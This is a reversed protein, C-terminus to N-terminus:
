LYWGCVIKQNNHKSCTQLWVEYNCNYLHLLWCYLLTLLRCHQTFFAHSNYFSLFASETGFLCCWHFCLIICPLSVFMVCITPHRIVIHLYAFLLFFLDRHCGCLCRLWILFWIICRQICAVDITRISMFHYITWLKSFLLFHKM